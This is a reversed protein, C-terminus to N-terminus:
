PLDPGPRALRGLVSDVAIKLPVPSLLKLSPAVLSLALLGAVHAWYPRAHRLLRLYLTLTSARPAAM